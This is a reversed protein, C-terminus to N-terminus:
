GDVRTVAGSATWRLFSSRILVALVAECSAVDLGWLRAAQPVTLRLGPMELFEGRIREVAAHLELPSM